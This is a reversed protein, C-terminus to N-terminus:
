DGVVSKHKAFIPALSKQPRASSDHRGRRNQADAVDDLPFHHGNASDPMGTNRYVEIPGGQEYGTYDNDPHFDGVFAVGCRLCFYHVRM